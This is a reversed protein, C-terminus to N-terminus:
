RGIERRGIMAFINSLIMFSWIMVCQVVYLIIEGDCYAKRGFELM